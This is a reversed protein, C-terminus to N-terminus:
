NRSLSMTPKIRLDRTSAPTITSANVAGVAVCVIVAITLITPASKMICEKQIFAGV